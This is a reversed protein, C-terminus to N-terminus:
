PLAYSLLRATVELVSKSSVNEHNVSVKLYTNKKNKMEPAIAVAIIKCLVDVVAGDVVLFNAATLAMGLVELSTEGGLATAAPEEEFFAEIGKVDAADQEDQWDKVAQVQVKNVAEAQLTRM